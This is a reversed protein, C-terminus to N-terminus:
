CRSFSCRIPMKRCKETITAEPSTPTDLGCWSMKRAAQRRATEIDAVIPLGINNWGPRDAHPRYPEIAATSDNRAALRGNTPGRLEYPYHGPTVTM